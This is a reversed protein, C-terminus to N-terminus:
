GGPDGERWGDGGQPAAMAGCLSGGRGVAGVRGSNKGALRRRIRGDGVLEEMAPKGVIVGGSRRRGDV